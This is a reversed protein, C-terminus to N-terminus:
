RSNKNQKKSCTCMVQKAPADALTNGFASTQTYVPLSM